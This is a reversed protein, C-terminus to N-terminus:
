PLLTHHTSNPTSWIQKGSALYSVATPELSTIEQLSFPEEFPPSAMEWLPAQMLRPRGYRQPPANDRTNQSFHPQSFPSISIDM